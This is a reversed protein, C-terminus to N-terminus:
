AGGDQKHNSIISEVVTKISSKNVAEKLEATATATFSKSELFAKFMPFGFSAAMIGIAIVAGLPHGSLSCIFVGLTALTPMIKDHDPYDEDDTLDLAM